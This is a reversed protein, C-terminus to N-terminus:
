IICMDQSNSDVAASRDRSSTGGGGDHDWHSISTTSGYGGGHGSQPVNHPTSESSLTSNREGRTFHHPCWTNGEKWITMNSNYNTKDLQTEKIYVNLVV